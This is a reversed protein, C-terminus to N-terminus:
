GNDDEEGEYLSDVIDNLDDETLSNVRDLHATHESLSDLQEDTLLRLLLDIGDVIRDEEPLVAPKTLGIWEWFKAYKPERAMQGM